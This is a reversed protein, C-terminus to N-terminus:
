GKEFLASLWSLIAWVAFWEVRWTFLFRRYSEEISVVVLSFLSNIRLAVAEIEEDKLLKIEAICRSNM